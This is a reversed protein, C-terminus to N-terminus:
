QIPNTEPIAQEAEECAKMYRQLMSHRRAEAEARYRANIRQSERAIALTEAKLKVFKLTMVDDVDKIALVTAADLIPDDAIVRAHFDTLLQDGKSRVVDLHAEAGALDLAAIQLPDADLPDPEAAPDGLITRYWALIADASPRSNLGHRVANKSARKKGGFSRPGTSARANRRNADRQRQSTAM